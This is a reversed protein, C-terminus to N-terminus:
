LVTRPFFFDGDQGAHVCDGVKLQVVTFMLVNKESLRQRHYTIYQRINLATKQTTSGHLIITSRRKLTRVAEMMLSINGEKKRLYRLFRRHVSRQGHRHASV